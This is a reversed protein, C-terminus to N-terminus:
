KPQSKPGTTPNHNHRHNTSNQAPSTQPQLPHRHKHSYHTEIHPNQTMSQDTLNPNQAPPPTMTAATTPQTKPRRHKHSYHAVTNTATTPQCHKNFIKLKKKKKKEKKNLNKSKSNTPSGTITIQASIQQLKHLNIQRQHHNAM